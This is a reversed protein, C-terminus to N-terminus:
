LIHTSIRLCAHGERGGKIMGECCGGCCLRVKANLEAMEGHPLDQLLYTLGRIRERLEEVSIGAAPCFTRTKNKHPHTTPPPPLHPLFPSTNYCHVSCVLGVCAPVNRGFM